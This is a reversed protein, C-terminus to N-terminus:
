CSSRRCENCGHANYGELSAPVVLGGLANAEHLGLIGGELALLAKGSHVLVAVDLSQTRELM